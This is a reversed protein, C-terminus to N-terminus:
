FNLRENCGFLDLTAVQGFSESHKDQVSFDPVLLLSCEFENRIELFALCAM